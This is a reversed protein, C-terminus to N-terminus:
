SGKLAEYTKIEETLDELQATLSDRQAKILIADGSPPNADFDLLIDAFLKAQARTIKYEREKRIM